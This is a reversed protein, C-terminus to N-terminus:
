VFCHSAEEEMEDQFSVGKKEGSAGVRPGGSGFIGSVRTLLTNAVSATASSPTHTTTSAIHTAHITQPPPTVDMTPISMMGQLTTIESSPMTAVM